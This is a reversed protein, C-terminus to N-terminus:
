RRAFTKPDKRELELAQELFAIADEIGCPTNFWHGGRVYEHLTVDAGFSVLTDRLARGDKVPHITDDDCHELLIPTNHLIENHNSDKDTATTDDLHLVARTGELSRGPFPMRAGFAIFAALRRPLPTGDADDPMVKIDLSLLAHLATAAGQCHGMLGIRHYRGNLYFAERHILNRISAVYKRLGEVQTDEDAKDSLDDPVKFWQLAREGGPRAVPEPFVWRVSPFSQTISHGHADPSFGLTEVFNRASDGRGHLFIITHTPPRAHFPVANPITFIRLNPDM